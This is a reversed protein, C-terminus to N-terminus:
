ARSSRRARGAPPRRPWRQQDLARGLDAGGDGALAHLEADHRPHGRDAALHERELAQAAPVVVDEQRQVARVLRLVGGDRQRRDLGEGALLREVVVEHARGEGLDGRGAPQLDDPAARGDHEVGGVVGVPRRRGRRAISSENVKEGSM